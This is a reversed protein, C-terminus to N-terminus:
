AAGAAVGADVIAVTTRRALVAADCHRHIRLARHGFALRGVLRVALNVGDVTLLDDGCTEAHLAAFVFLARGTLGAHVVAACWVLGAAGGAVAIFDTEAALAHLAKGVRLTRATV